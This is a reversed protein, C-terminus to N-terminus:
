SQKFSVNDIYFEGAGLWTRFFMNDTGGVEANQTLTYTGTGTVVAGAIFYPQYSMRLSGSIVRYDFSVTYSVGLTCPVSTYTGANGAAGIIHMEEGVVEFTTPSGIETWGTLGDSFDGNTVLNPSVKRPRAVLFRLATNM